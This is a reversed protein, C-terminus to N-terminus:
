NNTWYSDNLNVANGINKLCISITHTRYFITHHCHQSSWRLRYRFYFHKPSHTSSPIEQSKMCRNLVLSNTGDDQCMFPWHKTSLSDLLVILLFSCTSFWETPKSCTSDSIWIHGFGTIAFTRPAARPPPTAQKHWINWHRPHILMRIWQPESLRQAPLTSNHTQFYPSAVSNRRPLLNEPLSAALSPMTLRATSLSNSDSTWVTRSSIKRPPGM